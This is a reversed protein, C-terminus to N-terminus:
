VRNVGRPARHLSLNLVSALLRDRQVQAVRGGPQHLFEVVALAVEVSVVFFAAYCVHVAKGVRQAPVGVILRRLFAALLLKSRAHVFDAPNARSFSTLSRILALMRESNRM